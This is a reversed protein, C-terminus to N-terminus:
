LPVLIVSETALKKKSVAFLLSPIPVDLGPYVKSTNPLPYTDPNKPTPVDKFTAPLVPIPPDNFTVPKVEALPPNFTVPSDLKVPLTPTPPLKFTVERRVPVFATNEPNVTVPLVPIPLEKVTPDTPDNPPNFTVPLETSDVREVEPLTLIPPDRLIDERREPIFPANVPDSVEALKFVVPLTPIPPLKTTVEAGTNEEKPEPITLDVLPAKDAVDTLRVESTVPTNPIAM